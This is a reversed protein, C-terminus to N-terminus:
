EGKALFDRVRQEPNDLNRLHATLIDAIYSQLSQRALTAALKMRNHLETDLKVVTTHRQEPM